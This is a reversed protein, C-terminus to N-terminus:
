EVVNGADELYHHLITISDEIYQMCPKRTAKDALLEGCVISGNMSAFKACMEKIGSYARAKEAPNGQVSFGSVMAMGTVTGCAQHQGGIGGGLGISVSAAAAEPLRHVDDFVMVVCQSCTHGQKRLGRARELRSELTYEM